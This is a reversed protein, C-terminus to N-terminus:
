DEMEPHCLECWDGGAYYEINHIPCIVTEVPEYALCKATEDCVFNTPIVKDGDYECEFSECQGMWKEGIYEWYHHGFKCSKKDPPIRYGPQKSM